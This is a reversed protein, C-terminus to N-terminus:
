RFTAHTPWKGELKVVQRWAIFWGKDHLLFAFPGARFFGDDDIGM